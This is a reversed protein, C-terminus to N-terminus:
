RWQDGSKGDVLRRFRGSVQDCGIGMVRAIRRFSLGEGVLEMLRDDCEKTWVIKVTRYQGGGTKGPIHFVGTTM